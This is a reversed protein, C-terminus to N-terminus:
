SKRKDISLAKMIFPLSPTRLMTEISNRDIWDELSTKPPGDFDAVSDRGYCTIEKRKDQSGEYKKLEKVYSPGNPHVGIWLEAYCTDDDVKFKSDQSARFEACKANQSGKKGWAYNQTACILGVFKSM